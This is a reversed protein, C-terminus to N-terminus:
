KGALVAEVDAELLSVIQDITQAGATDVLKGNVSFSPTGTLQLKDGAAKAQLIAAQHTQNKLCNTFTDQNIGLQRAYAVFQATPDSVEAWIRQNEFLMDHMQWYVGQDAACRAAEAAPIANPHINLPYDQYVFKVKGTAVYKTEFALSAM